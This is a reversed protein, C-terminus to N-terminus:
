RRPPKVIPSRVIDLTYADDKLRALVVYGFSRNEISSIFSAATASRALGSAFILGFAVATVVAKLGVAKEGVAFLKNERSM